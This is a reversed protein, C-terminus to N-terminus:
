FDKKSRTPNFDSYFQERTVRLVEKVSPSRELLSSVLGNVEPHKAPDCVRNLLETRSLSQKEITQELTPVVKDDEIEVNESIVIVKGGCRARMDNVRGALNSPHQVWYVPPLETNACVSLKESLERVEPVRTVLIKTFSRGVLPLREYTLDEHVAVCSKDGFESTRRPHSAGTYLAVRGDGLDYDWVQHIDGLIVLRTAKPVWELDFNWSGEYPIAQRVAQHMVMVQPIAKQQAWSASLAFIEDRIHYDVGGVSIKGILVQSGDGIHKPWPHVALYWPVNRKDHNGQIAYVRIGAAQCRDMQSRFFRVVTPDPDVSDFLDGAIILPVGLDLGHQVFAEFARYADGMIQLHRRWIWTDLHIDGLALFQIM